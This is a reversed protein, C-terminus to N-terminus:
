AEEGLCRRAGFCSANCIRSSIVYVIGDRIQIDLPPFSPFCVQQTLECSQTGLMTVGVPYRNRHHPSDDFEPPHATDLAQKTWVMPPWGSDVRPIHCLIYLIHFGGSHRHVVRHDDHGFRITTSRFKQKQAIFNVARRRYNPNLLVRLQADTHLSQIIYV